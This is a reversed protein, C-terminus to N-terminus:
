FLNEPCPRGRLLSFARKCQVVESYDRGPSINRGESIKQKVNRTSRNAEMQLVM